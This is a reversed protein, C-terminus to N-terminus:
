SGVFQTEKVSEMSKMVESIGKENNIEKYIELAKNYYEM